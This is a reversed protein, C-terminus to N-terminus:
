TAAFLAAPVGKGMVDAVVILASTATLPLVDYFDGGVQQASHCFGAFTLGTLRPFSRPLLSQQIKRAIELERPTPLSGGVDSKPAALGAAHSKPAALSSSASASSSASCLKRLILRNETRGRLYHVEDMLSNIIFLGRGEETDSEPLSTTQPWDFGATHDILQLELSTDCCFAAIELSYQQAPGNTHLVANNCAEALAQECAIQDKELLGQKALLNRTALCAHRASHLDCAFSLRFSSGLSSASASASSSSFRC